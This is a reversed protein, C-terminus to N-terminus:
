RGQRLRLVYFSQGDTAAGREEAVIEFRHLM